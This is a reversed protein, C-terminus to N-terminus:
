AAVRPFERVRLDEPWEAMDGGKRDDLFVRVRTNPPPQGDRYSWGIPPGWEDGRRDYLNQYFEDYYSVHVRAGLQKVFAPVGAAKCQAVTSRAWALDLARAGGGSEGGVIVWDLRRFRFPRLDVAELLPEMSVFRVPAAAAADLLTQIRVLGARTGCTTGAWANSPWGGKRWHAPTLEEFGRPRKTLLLWDLWPTREITLWLRGRLDDLDRRDELVDSMSHAFVRRREGAQEAAHNWRDPERWYNESAERRPADRGWLEKGLRHAFARAYCNDCEPGAEVCGWWSNFTHHAWQISTGASM